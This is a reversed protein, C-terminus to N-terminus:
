VFRLPSTGRALRSLVDLHDALILALLKGRSHLGLKGYISSIHKEVTSKTLNLRQAIDDNSLGESVLWLVQWERQALARLRIGLGDSWSQIRDLQEPSFIPGSAAQRLASILLTPDTSRLLLGAGRAARAAILYVDWDVASLLLVAIQPRQTILWRGVEICSRDSLDADIVAVDVDVVFGPAFVEEGTALEHVVQLDRTRQVAQRLGARFAPSPDILLIRIPTITRAVPETKAPWALAGTL